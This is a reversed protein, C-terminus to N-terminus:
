CVQLNIRVPWIVDAIRDTPTFWVVRADNKWEDLVLCYDKQLWELLMWAKGKSKKLYDKYLEPHKASFWTEFKYM